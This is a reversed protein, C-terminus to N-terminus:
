RHENTTVVATMPLVGEKDRGIDNHCTGPTISLRGIISCILPLHHGSSDGGGEEDKDEKEGSLACVDPRQQATTSRSERRAGGSRDTQSTQFQDPSANARRGRTPHLGFPGSAVLARLLGQAGETLLHTLRSFM